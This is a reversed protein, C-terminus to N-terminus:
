KLYSIHCIMRLRLDEYEAPLVLLESEPFPAIAMFTVIIDPNLSPNTASIFSQRHIPLLSPMPRGPYWSFRIAPMIYFDGAADSGVQYPVWASKEPLDPNTRVDSKYNVVMFAMPQRGWFDGWISQLWRPPIYLGTATSRYQRFNRSALCSDFNISWISTRQRNM